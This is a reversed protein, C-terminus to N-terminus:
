RSIRQKATLVEPLTDSCRSAFIILGILFQFVFNFMSPSFVFQLFFLGVLLKVLSDPSSLFLMSPTVVFFVLLGFYGQEIAITILSSEFHDSQYRSDSSSLFGLGEGFISLNPLVDSVFFSWYHFRAINGPDDILIIAYIRDIQAFYIERPVVLIFGVIVLAFIAVSASPGLRRWLVVTQFASFLVLSQRSGSLFIAFFSVFICLLLISNSIGGKLCLYLLTSLIPFLLTSSGTLFVPRYGIDFEVQNHSLNSFTGTMADFVIGAAVFLILASVPSRLKELSDDPSLLSIPLLIALLSTAGMASPMLLSPITFIRMYNLLLVLFTLIIYIRFYKNGRSQLYLFSIPLTFLLIIQKWAVLPTGKFIYTIGAHSTISAILIFLLFLRFSSRHIAM